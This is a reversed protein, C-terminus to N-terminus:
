SLESNPKKPVRAVKRVDGTEKSREEMRDLDIVLEIGDIIMELASLKKMHARELKFGNADSYPEIESDSETQWQYSKLESEAKKIDTIIITIDKVALAVDSKEGLVQIQNIAAMVNVQVQHQSGIGKIDAIDDDILNAIIPDNIEETKCNDKIVQKLQSAIEDCKGDSSAYIKFSVLPNSIPEDYRRPPAVATTTADVGDQLEVSNDSSGSKSLKSTLNHILKRPAAMDVKFFNVFFDLFEKHLASDFIIIRITRVSKPNSRGFDRFATLMPTAVQSVSYGGQGFGFAPFSISEMGESEAKALCKKVIDVILSFHDIGAKSTASLPPLHAHIIKKCRLSGYSKTTVIEGHDLKLGSSVLQDCASQLMPGAKKLVAKSVANENLKMNETTTNVVIDVDEDSIDSKEVSM